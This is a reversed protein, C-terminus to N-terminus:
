VFSGVIKAFAECAQGIGLLDISGPSAYEIRAVHPRIPAPTTRRAVSLLLQNSADLQNDISSGISLHDVWPYRYYRERRIADGVAKYYLSEFGTLVAIFDEPEWHGAIELRLM